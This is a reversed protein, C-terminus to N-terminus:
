RNIIMSQGSMSATKLNKLKPPHSELWRTRSRQHIKCYSLLKKLVSNRGCHITNSECPKVKQQLSAPSQQGMLLSATEVFAFEM